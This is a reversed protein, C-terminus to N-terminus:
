WIIPTLLPYPLSDVMEDKIIYVILIVVQDIVVLM